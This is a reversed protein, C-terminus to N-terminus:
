SKIQIPSNSKHLIRREADRSNSEIQTRTAPERAPALSHDNGARSLRIPTKLREPITHFLSQMGKSSEFPVSDGIRVFVTFVATFRDNESTTDPTLAKTITGVRILPVGTQVIGAALEWM